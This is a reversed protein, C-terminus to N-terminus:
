ARLPVNLKRPSHTRIQQYDTHINVIQMNKQRNQLHQTLSRCLAETVCNRNSKYGWGPATRRGEGCPPPFLFFQHQRM